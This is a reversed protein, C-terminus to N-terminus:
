KIDLSLDSILNKVEPNSEMLSEAKEKPMYLKKESSETVPAVTVELNVKSTHIIQRFTAELKSLLQEEIWHQQADNLVSFSVKKVGDEERIEIASTELTNALRPKDSFKGALEKWHARIEDDEPVPDSTNLTRVGSSEQAKRMM